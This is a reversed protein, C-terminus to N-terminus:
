ADVKVFNSQPLASPLVVSRDLSFGGRNVALNDLRSTFRILVKGTVTKNLIDPEVRADYHTVDLASKAATQASPEPAAVGGWVVLLLLILGTRKM